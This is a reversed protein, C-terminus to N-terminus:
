LWHRRTVGSRRGNPRSAARYRAAASHIRPKPGAAPRGGWSKAYPLDAPVIGKGFEDATAVVPWLRM